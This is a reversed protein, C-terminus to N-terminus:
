CFISLCYIPLYLSLTGIGAAPQPAQQGPLPPRQENPTPPQFVNPTFNTPDKTKQVAISVQLIITLKVSATKM